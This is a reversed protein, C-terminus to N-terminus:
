PNPTATPALGIGQGLVKEKLDVPPNYREEDKHNETIWTEIGQQWRNQGDVSVPDKEVFVWYDKGDKNQYVSSQSTPETGKVFYEARTPQGDRPLGGGLPDIQLSIVNDPKNFQEDKTGKLTLVMLDHWIPSAGTVGSAIAQNMPTYDNNGVWVGVVRSPTYGFTWNDRKEDTTGTKAAVTRGAIRLYSNTGFEAARASNDLLIHSIIFAIDAPLVQKGERDKHEFMKRGTSSTVKLIAVPDKKKGENALASYATMEDIMSTERGGLVLSMGVNKMNEDTPEWSEVGMDYALQMSDKIGALGLMKVAPVNLSNALAYRAQVPGSYKGNYNVPVYSDESNSAKFDTKVDMLMTGATFGKEMAKAYVFPKMSSGPQRKAQTVVNFNGDIDTSFYDKSGVMALIEGNKPDEIMAAGNSVKYKKLSDIEDKVIKEAGKQLDYDLTTTVQLGGGEVASEGFQKALLEKVYMVFHPAKLNTERQSFTYKSIKKLADDAQKKTIYKDDKMRELVAETRDIYYKNGTFPSYLSPSQPLGALFASQALDLDKAKIGFYQESAAEIGIATGGYPINNLYMELIQDKSFRNDVQVALILEKIKRPLSREGTLLVNKVLQQTITSAGALRQGRLFNVFSRIYGIPSFGSNKYFDKDEIAITGERAYKNIQDLKVYTRNEDQYVSYLLQGKRDYIRTADKYKSSVLKGPTPLDRSYWLFLLPVIVVGAILGYVCLRIVLSWLGVNELSLFAPLSIGKHVRSRRRRPRFDPM